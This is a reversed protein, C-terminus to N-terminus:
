LNKIESRREIIGLLYDTVVEADFRSGDPPPFGEPDEKMNIHYIHNAAILQKRNYTHEEKEETAKKITWAIIGIFGLLVLFPFIASYVEGSGLHFGVMYTLYLFGVPIVALDIWKRDTFFSYIVLASVFAGFCHNFTEIM